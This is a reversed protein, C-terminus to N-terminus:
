KRIGVLEATVMLRHDYIYAPVCSVLTLTPASHLELYFNEEAIVKTQSVQYLYVEGEQNHIVVYVEQGNRLLSPIKALNRFISGEGRIPSQLHGFLYINGAEGPNATTPIHGVIDSPTEWGRADGYDIVKLAKITSELGIAPIEIRAPAPLQGIEALPGTDAISGFDELISRGFGHDVDAWRPNTWALAPVLSGPYIDAGSGPEARADVSRVYELEGLQSRAINAYIYYGSGAFLLVTGVIIMALSAWRGKGWSRIDRVTLLRKGAVAM